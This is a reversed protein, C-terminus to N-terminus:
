PSGLQKLGFFFLSTAVLYSLQIGTPLFETVSFGLLVPM